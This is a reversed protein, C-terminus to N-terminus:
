LLLSSFIGLAQQGALMALDALQLGTLASEDFLTALGLAIIGM